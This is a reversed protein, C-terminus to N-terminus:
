ICSTTSSVNKLFCFSAESKCAGTSALSKLWGSIQSVTICAKIHIKITKEHVVAVFPARSPMNCIFLSSSIHSMFAPSLGPQMSWWILIGLPPLLAFVLVVAKSKPFWIIKVAISSVSRIQWDLTNTKYMIAEYMMASYSCSVRCSNFRGTNRLYFM